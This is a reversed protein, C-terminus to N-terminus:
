HKSEAIDQEVLIGNEYCESLTLQAQSFGSEASLILWKLAKEYDCPVGQGNMYCFALNYAAKPYRMNAARKFWMAASPYDQAIGEGHYFAYGLNFMAEVENCEAAKQYFCVADSYRKAEYYVNAKELYAKGNDDAMSVQLKFLVAILVLIRFINNDAM